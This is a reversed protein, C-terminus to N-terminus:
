MPWRQRWGGVFGPTNGVPQISEGSDGTGVSSRASSRVTVLRPRQGSGRGAAHGNRRQLEAWRERDEQRQPARIAPTARDV